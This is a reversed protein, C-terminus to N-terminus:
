KNEKVMQQTFQNLITSFSQVFREDSSLDYEGLEELIAHVIEHFFTGQMSSESAVDMDVNKAITIHTSAYNTRGMNNGGTRDIFEIDFTTGGIQIQNPIKLM